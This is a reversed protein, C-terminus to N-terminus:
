MAKSSLLRQKELEQEKKLENRKRRYEAAELRKKEKQLKYQQHNYSWYYQITIGYPTCKPIYYM